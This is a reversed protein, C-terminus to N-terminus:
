VAGRLRRAFSRRGVKLQGIRVAEAVLIEMLVPTTASKQLREITREYEPDYGGIQEQIPISARLYSACTAFDGADFAAQALGVQAWAEGRLNKMGRFMVLAEQFSHTSEVSRGLKLQLLGMRCFAVAKGLTQDTLDAEEILGEIHQHALRFKNLQTEIGALVSRAQAYSTQSIRQGKAAALAGTLNEYAREKDGVAALAESYLRSASLRLTPDRMTASQLIRRAYEVAEDFLGLVFCCHAFHYYMWLDSIARNNILNRSLELFVVHAGRRKIVPAIAALSRELLDDREGSRDFARCAKIMHDFWTEEDGEGIAADALEKYHRGLAAHGSKVLDNALSLRGISAVLDHVKWRERDYREVLFGHHLSRFERRIDAAAAGSLFMHAIPEDFPGDILSLFGLLRVARPNLMRGLEDFWKKLREAEILEGDLLDRADAGLNILGCFLAMALPLAGTKQILARVISADLGVVGRQGLLATTEEETFDAISHVTVGPLTLAEDPIIRSVLVLHAPGGYSATLSLLPDMSEYDCNQYDDLFLISNTAMLYTLLQRCQAKATQATISTKPALRALLGELSEEKECDVWLISRAQGNTRFRSALQATLFSKGNGSLGTIILISSHTQKEALTSVAMDRLVANDFTPAYFTGDNLATQNTEQHCCDEELILKIETRLQHALIKGFEQPTGYENVSGLLSGDPARFQAFFDQVDQWQRLAEKRAEESAALSITPVETRRYLLISQVRKDAVSSRDDNPQTAKLADFYEFETGSRFRTGDPTVVPTGLRSWLIVVVINCDSPSPLGREIAQQPSLHASLSAPANPDDWSIIDINAKGRIFPDLSLVDRVINRAIEREAAVDGPSSLFIRIQRLRM